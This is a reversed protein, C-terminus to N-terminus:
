PASSGPSAAGRERPHSTATAGDADRASAVAPNIPTLHRDCRVRVAHPAACGTMAVACLLVLARM